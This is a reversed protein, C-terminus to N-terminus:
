DRGLGQREVREIIESLVTKSAEHLSHLMTLAAEKRDEPNSFRKKVRDRVGQITPGLLERIRDEALQDVVERLIEQETM